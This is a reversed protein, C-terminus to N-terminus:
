LKFMKRISTLVLGLGAIALSGFMLGNALAGTEDAGTVPILTEGGTVPIILPCVDMGGTLSTSEGEGWFLAVTHTGLETTTLVHKGPAISGGGQHAGGDVTFYEYPFPKSNPNYVTWVLKSDSNCDPALGLSPPALHGGPPTPTWTPPEVTETPPVVTETPPVPTETPPIPTEGGPITPTATPPVETETPPVETETPPVETETPPVETETPPVETETPPVETETPPVETETPPVLTETPPVETETPPVSTSTNTATPPVSTNTNTATPPVSTNTATIRPDVQYNDQKPGYDVNYENGVEELKVTHAEFCGAGTGTDHYGSAVIPKESGGSKQQIQWYVGTQGPTFDKYNIYVIDGVFYHNEDQTEDGCDGNTTWISGAVAGGIAQAPQVAVTLFAGTILMAASVIYLANNFFKLLRTAKKPM